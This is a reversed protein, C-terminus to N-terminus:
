RSAGEGPQALLAEVKDTFIRPCVFLSSAAAIDYAMQTSMGKTTITGTATNVLEYKIRLRNEYEDLIARIRVRDGFKLPSIYKASIDTVPFAYGSDRMQRYGYGIKNLLACRAKEFYKIYNGHWVIEMSDVDYFEISIEVEAKLNHPDM